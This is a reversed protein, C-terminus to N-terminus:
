QEIGGASLGIVAGLLFCAVATGYGVVRGMWHSTARAGLSAALGLSGLVGCVTRRRMPRRALLQRFEEAEPDPCRQFVFRTGSTGGVGIRIRDDIYSTDLVVSSTPGICVNFFRGQGIVIRPADFFVRLALPTLSQRENDTLAVADGRLIVSLRGLLAQLVIVNVAEGVVPREGVVTRGLGTSNVTLVHQLTRQTRWMRQALGNPRTWLGGVPSEGEVAPKTYVVDYLGILPTFRSTNSSDVSPASKELNQIYNAIATTNRDEAQLEDMLLPVTEQLPSSFRAHTLRRPDGVVM